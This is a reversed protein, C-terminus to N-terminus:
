MVISLLFVFKEQKGDRESNLDISMPSRHALALSEWGWSLDLDPLNKAIESRCITVWGGKSTTGLSLIIELKHYKGFQAKESIPVSFDHALREFAM